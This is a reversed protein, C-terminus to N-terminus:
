RLEDLAEGLIPALRLLFGHRDGVMPPRGLIQQRSLGELVILAELLPVRLGMPRPFQGPFPHIRQLGVGHGSRGRRRDVSLHGEGLRRGPEHDLLTIEPAVLVVASSFASAVSSGTRDNERTEILRALGRNQRRRQRVPRRSGVPAGQRQRFGNPGGQLEFLGAPHDDILQVGEDPGADVKLSVLLAFKDPPAQGLAEPALDPVSDEFGLALARKRDGRAAADSPDLPAVVPPWPRNAHKKKPPRLTRAM